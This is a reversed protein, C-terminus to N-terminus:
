GPHGAGEEQHGDTVPTPRVLLLVRIKVGQVVSVNLLHPLLRRRPQRGRLHETM